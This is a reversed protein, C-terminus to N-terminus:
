LILEKVSSCFRNKSFFKAREMAKESLRSLKAQDKILNRTKEMLEETTNWLYGNEGEGVIESQAGANIVVPVAGAGMAEVTSIGFHEAYEPHMDLDEGFGTAHWYIKSKAYLDRLYSYSANIVIEINSGRTQAKLQNVFDLDEPLVSGALILKWSKIQHELKKFTDIMIQQKKANMGRTYRGVSLIINEKKIKPFAIDVAPPLVQSNVGLERDLSAKVFESYCIIKNIRKLKIKGLISVKVWPVPFQFLLINKKSLSFPISGDSVFLIADFGRTAILKKVISTNKGFINNEFEIKELSLKFRNQANERIYEEQKRDWFITVRHEQSICIAAELIYKEGGGLTDLYPDYIAIKM